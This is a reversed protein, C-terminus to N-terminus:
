YSGKSADRAAKLRQVFAAHEATATGEAVTQLVGGLDGAVMAPDNLWLGPFVESRFVGDEAPPLREYQTDRLVFWDISRDFVRWAVYERVGHRLYVRLKQNLDYSATTAAVEVV